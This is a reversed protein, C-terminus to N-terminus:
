HSQPAFFLDIEAGVRAKAKERVRKCIRPIIHPSGLFLIILYMLSVGHCGMGIFMNCEKNVTSQIGVPFSNGDVAVMRRDTTVISHMTDMASVQHLPTLSM